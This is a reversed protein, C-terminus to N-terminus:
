CHLDSLKKELILVLVLIDVRVTRNLMTSFTSVLAILCSFIFSMRILFSSTFIDKNASIIMYISFRVSAVLFNNYGVLLNPLTATYDIANRYMLLLIDPCFSLIGNVIAYKPIFKDLNIYLNLEM